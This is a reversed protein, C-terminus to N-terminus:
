IIGLSTYVKKYNDAVSGTVNLYANQRRMVDVFDKEIKEVKEELQKENEFKLEDTKQYIKYDYGKRVFLLTPINCSLTTKIATSASAIMIDAMNIFEDISLENFYQGKVVKSDVINKYKEMKDAPHYKIYLLKNNERCYDQVVRIMEINDEVPLSISNMIIGISDTKYPGVIEVPKKQFQFPSGVAIIKGNYGVKRADDCSAESDALFYDSKSKSYAWSNKEIIFTGHQFTVIKCNKEKYKQIIFSDVPMVDCYVLVNKLMINKSRLVAEIYQYDKYAQLLDRLLCMREGFNLKTQKMVRNWKPVMSLYKFGKIDFKSIGSEFSIKNEIASTVSKFAAHHDKRDLYSSSFLVLNKGDGHIEVTYNIRMAVKLLMCIADKIGSIISKDGDISYHLVDGILIDECGSFKLSNLKEEFNEMSNIVGINLRISKGM